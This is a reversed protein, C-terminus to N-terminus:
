RAKIESDRCKNDGHAKFPYVSDELVGYDQVYNFCIITTGGFCKKKDEEGFSKNHNPYKERICDIVQQVSLRILPIDPNMIRHRAEIAALSAIIFCYSTYFIQFSLKIM